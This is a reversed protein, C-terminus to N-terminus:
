RDVWHEKKGTVLYMARLMLVASALSPDSVRM